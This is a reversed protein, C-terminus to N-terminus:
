RSQTSNWGTPFQFMTALLWAWDDWEYFEMGNPISVAHYYSVRASAWAYFEMGNPISVKIKSITLFIGLLLIGDRQSNFSSGSKTMNLILIYFEMGNPISVEAANPEKSKPKTSNWGTPFQFLFLAVISISSCYTSNWGTPFQFEIEKLYEHNKDYYFEMGNPISVSSCGWWYQSSAYFEM